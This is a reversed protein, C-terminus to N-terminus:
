GGIGFTRNQVEGDYEITTEHYGSPLFYLAAATTFVKLSSAPIFSKDSDVDILVKGTNLDIAYIGLSAHDIHYDEKACLARFVFASVVFLRIM